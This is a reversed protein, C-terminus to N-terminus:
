DGKGAAGRVLAGEFLVDPGLQRIRVQPMSWAAAITDVGLGDALSPAGAAGVIRPAVFVAAAHALGADLLSGHVTPGGEVLVRRVGRRGLERLVASLDLRGERLPAETLTVGPRDFAPRRAGPASPAHFVLTPAAGDCLLQAGGPMRLHTDLVVRLPNDGPAMRVTLRPDDRLVTGVGVMVADHTARLRHAEQRAEDGTIWQSDGTATAMRGDLTVAAKLTVRPAADSVPAEPPAHAPSV